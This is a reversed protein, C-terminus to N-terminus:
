LSLICDFCKNDLVFPNLKWRLQFNIIAFLKRCGIQSIMWQMAVLEVEFVTMFGLKVVFNGWALRDLRNRPGTISGRVPSNLCQEITARLLM